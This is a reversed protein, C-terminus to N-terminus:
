FCMLYVSLLLFSIYSCGRFFIRVPCSFGKAKLTSQNNRCLVFINIKGRTPWFWVQRLTAFKIVPVRALCADSLRETGVLAGQRGDTLVVLYIHQATESRQFSFPGKWATRRTPLSSTSLTPTIKTPPKPPKSSSFDDPHIIYQISIDTAIGQGEWVGVEIARCMKKKMNPGVATSQSNYNNSSTTSCFFPRLKLATHIAIPDSKPILKDEGQSCVFNSYVSFHDALIKWCCWFLIQLSPLIRCKFFFREWFSIPSALQRAQSFHIYIQVKLSVLKIRKFIIVDM